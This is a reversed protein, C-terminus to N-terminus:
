SLALKTIGACTKASAPATAVMGIVVAAVVSVTVAATVVVAFDEFFFVPTELFFDFFDPHQQPACHPTIQPLPGRQMNPLDDRRAGACLQPGPVAEPGRGFLCESMKAKLDGSTSVAVILLSMTQHTFTEM